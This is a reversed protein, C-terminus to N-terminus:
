RAGATPGSRASRGARDSRRRPPRRAWAPPRARSLGSRRCGADVGRGRGGRGLAGDGDGEGYPCTKLIGSIYTGVGVQGTGMVPRERGLEVQGKGVMAPVPPGTPRVM